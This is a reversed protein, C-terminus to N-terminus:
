NISSGLVPSTINSMSNLKPSLIHGDSNTPLTSSSNITNFTKNQEMLEIIRISLEEIEKDKEVIRM